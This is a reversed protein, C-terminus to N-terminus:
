CRSKRDHSFEGATVHLVEGAQSADVERVGLEVGHDAVAIRVTERRRQRMPEGNGAREHTIWAVLVAQALMYVSFGVLGPGAGLIGLFHPATAFVAGHILPLSWRRYLALQMLSLSSLLLVAPRQSLVATLGLISVALLSTLGIAAAETGRFRLSLVGVAVAAASVVIGSGTEVEASEDM